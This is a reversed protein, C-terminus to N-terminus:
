KMETTLQWKPYTYHFEIYKFIEYVKTKNRGVLSMWRLHGVEHNNIM